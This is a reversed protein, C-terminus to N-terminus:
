HGVFKMKHGFGCERDCSQLVVSVHNILELSSLPARRTKVSLWYPFGGSGTVVVLARNSEM